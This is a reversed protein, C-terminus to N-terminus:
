RCRTVARAEDAIQELQSDTLELGGIRQGSMVNENDEATCEDGDCIHGLGMLHGMEHAITSPDRRARAVKRCRKNVLARGPHQDEVVDVLELVVAGYDYEVFIFPIGLVTQAEELVVEQVLEEEETKDPDADVLRVPLADGCATALYSWLILHLHARALRM